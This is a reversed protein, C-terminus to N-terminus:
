GAGAAAASRTVLREALSSRALSKIERWAADFGEADPGSLAPTGEAVRADGIVGELWLARKLCAITRRGSASFTRARFADLVAHVEGMREEDGEVCVRWAHAWERPLVNAPGSVVGVPLGGKMRFRNWHERIAGLVGHAPRFLEFILSSHGVYIGFHEPSGFARAARTYNGLVKKGASVKIGRVFPLRAIAKVQHTPIHPAARDIAIDANDYLYIPFPRGAAEVRDGVDRRLLRVPDDVGRISLPAIVGADAGCAIASELNALSEGVTPATIGAWCEVRALAGTRDRRIRMVEDTCVGICHQRTDNAVRDWEGTTGMAFIINAGHGEQVVHRVLARQDDALLSGDADLATILPASLGHAPRDPM